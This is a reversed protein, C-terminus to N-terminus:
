LTLLIKLKSKLNSDKSSKIVSCGVCFCFRLMSVYIYFALNMGAPVHFETLLNCFIVPGTYLAGIFVAQHMM